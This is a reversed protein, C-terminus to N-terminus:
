SLTNNIAASKTAIIFRGKPRDAIEIKEIDDTVEGLIKYGIVKGKAGKKPRGKTVHKCIQEVTTTVAYYKLTKEFQKLQLKQM